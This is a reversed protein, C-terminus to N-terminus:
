KGLIYVANMTGDVRIRDGTKIKKTAEGTGVVAPIGFERAVIAAHALSAGSDTVVASIIGFIPTWPVSTGPAVLIEGPQVTGLERETMVVRAIGEVVGPISSAGYLDAKLEPRVRPPAGIVRVIADKRSMEAIHSIDGLFPEPAVKCNEEWEKRRMDVYPQLSVREMSVAAKRIERPVLFLIDDQKGIVGAKAFRRGYEMFIHRQIAMAPVDIYINHEESFVGCKQGVRMLATFWDKQESPVKSLVEKEAEERVKVLREREADLTFVGGKTIGARIDRLGLSPKEIWSPTAVDWTDLLRFGERSVFERYESLWKRGADSQELKRMLEEDDTTSLFLDALGLERAKDSLGWLERNVKFLANEFGGLLSKFTPHELDIGTLQECLEAFLNYFGYVPYMWIMHVKWWGHHIRILADEFLELLEANSMQKLRDPHCQEKFYAIDAMWKDMAKKWEGDYDEVVGRTRERFLQERTPIDEPKEVTIFEKAHFEPTQVRYREVEKPIKFPKTVESLYLYSEKPDCEIVSLYLYGNILRWDWGKTEPMSMMEAGYALGYMVGECWLWASLPCWPKPSHVLDAMWLPRKKLEREPDFELETFGYNGGYQGTM